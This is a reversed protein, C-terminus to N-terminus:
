EERDKQAKSPPPNPADLMLILRNLLPSNYGEGTAEQEYEELQTRVDKLTELCLPLLENNTKSEWWLREIIPVVDDLDFNGTWVGDSLEVLGDAKLASLRKQANTM